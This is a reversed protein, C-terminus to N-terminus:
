GSTTWRTGPQAERDTNSGTPKEGRAAAAERSTTIPDQAPVFIETHADRLQQIQAGYSTQDTPKEITVFKVLTLGNRALADKFPGMSPVIYPSNLVSVGVNKKGFYPSAPTIIEKGLFDALKSLLTDYTGAIEYMGLMKFIVSANDPGGAAM